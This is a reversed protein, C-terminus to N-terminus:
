ELWPPLKDPDNVVFVMDSGFIKIRRLDGEAAKLARSWVEPHVLPTAAKLAAEQAELLDDVTSDALRLADRAQGDFPRPDNDPRMRRAPAAM